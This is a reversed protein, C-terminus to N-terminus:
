NGFDMDEEMLDIIEDSVDRGDLKATGSVYDCFPAKGEYEEVRFKMDDFVLDGTERGSLTITGGLTLNTIASKLTSTAIGNPDGPIDLEYTFLADFTETLGGDFGWDRASYGEFLSEVVCDIDMVIEWRGAMLPKDKPPPAPPTISFNDSSRIVSVYKAEPAGVKLYFGTEITEYGAPAGKSTVFGKASAAATEKQAAFGENLSENLLAGLMTYTTPFLTNWLGCSGLAVTFFLASVSFIFATKRRM